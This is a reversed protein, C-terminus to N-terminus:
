TQYMFNGCCTRSIDPLTAVSGAPGNTVTIFTNEPKGTARKGSVGFYLDHGAYAQRPGWTTLTFETHKPDPTPPEPVPIPAPTPEDFSHVWAVFAAQASGLSEALALLFTKTAPNM